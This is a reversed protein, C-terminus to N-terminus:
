GQRTDRWRENSIKRKKTSGSSVLQSREMQDVFEYIMKRLQHLRRMWILEKNKM